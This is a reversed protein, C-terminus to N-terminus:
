LKSMGELFALLIRKQRIMKKQEENQIIQEVSEEHIEDLREKIEKNM